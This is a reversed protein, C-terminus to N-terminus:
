HMFFGTLAKSVVEPIEEMLFHGSEVAKGQVDKAWKEWVTVPNGFSAAFFDEPYLVFVPCAIRQGLNKNHRDHQVDVTAGARYDECMAGIVTANNFCRLYEQWAETTIAPKNGSWSDLTHKLFYEANQLMLMEPFPHPQALLWWHPIVRALDFTMRDAMEGTPIIDLVALRTVADPHDFAMRYGVRGGRDHGAVGFRSFGLQKMFQVLINAMNRKSYAEHDEDPAPGTSDGYGPLDPILLTFQNDLLPAVKHWAMHTQPFGHLLLLPEGAGMRSYAIKNGAVTEYIVPMVSMM